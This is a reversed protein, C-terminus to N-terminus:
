HNKQYTLYNNYPHGLMKYVLPSIIFCQLVLSGVLVNGIFSNSTLISISTYFIAIITSLYKYVMRRTPNVIPRKHTDAPSHLFIFIMSVCGIIGRIISKLHIVSCLYPIGIFIISSSILCYSSKNSHLGFSFSRIGTYILTFFIVQNEINLLISLLFIFVLKTILIYISVLGYRIEAIKTDSYNPNNAQIYRILPNIVINKM